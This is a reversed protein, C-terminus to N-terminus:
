LEDLLLAMLLKRRRDDRRVQNPTLPKDAKREPGYSRPRVLDLYRPEEVVADDYNQLLTLLM